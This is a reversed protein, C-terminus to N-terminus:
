YVEGARVVHGGAGGASKAHPAYRAHWGESARITAM